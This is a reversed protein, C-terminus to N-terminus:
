RRLRQSRRHAERQKAARSSIKAAVDTEREEGPAATLHAALDKIRPHMFLDLLTVDPAVNERLASLVRALLISNGGLDFFNDLVGVHPSDLVTCWINAIDREVGTSPQVGEAGEVRPEEYAWDGRFWPMVRQPRPTSDSGFSRLEAENAVYRLTPWYPAHRPILARVQDPEEFAQELVRPQRPARELWQTM